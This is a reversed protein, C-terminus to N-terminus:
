GVAAADCKKGVREFIRSFQRFDSQSVGAEALTKEDTRVGTILRRLAATLTKRFINATRAAAAPGNEEVIKKAVCGCSFSELKQTRIRDRQDLKFANLGIQCIGTLRSEVNGPTAPTMLVTAFYGAVVVAILFLGAFIGAILRM